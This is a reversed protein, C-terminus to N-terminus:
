HYGTPTHNGGNQHADQAGEARGSTPPFVIFHYLVFRVLVVLIISIANIANLLLVDPSQGLMRALLLDGAWVLVAGLATCGANVLVFLTAELVRGRHPRARFAWDRNGFYANVLAILSSGLKAWVPTWSMWLLLNFAGLEILTSLGGVLGFKLLVWLQARTPATPRQSRSM